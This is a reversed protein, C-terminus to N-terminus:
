PAAFRKKLKDEIKPDLGRVDRLSRLVIDVFEDETGNLGKLNLLVNVNDNLLRSFSVLTRPLASETARKGLTSIITYVSSRIEEKM